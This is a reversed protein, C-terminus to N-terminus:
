HTPKPPSALKEAKETDSMAEWEEICPPCCFGVKKGNWERVNEATLEKANVDNGMIPCKTNVIQIASTAAATTATAMAASPTEGEGCGALFCIGACIFMSNLRFYVQRVGDSSCRRVFVSGSINAMCDASQVPRHTKM